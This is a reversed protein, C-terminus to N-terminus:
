IKKRIKQTCKRCQWQQKHSTTYFPVYHLTIHANRHGVFKYLFDWYGSRSGIWILNPMIEWLSVFTQVHCYWLLSSKYYSDKVITCIHTYIVLLLSISTIKPTNYMYTSNFSDRHPGCHFSDKKQCSSYSYMQTTSSEM